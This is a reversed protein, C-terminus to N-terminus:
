KLLYIKQSTQVVALNGSENLDLNIIEEPFTIQHIKIPSTDNPKFIELLNSNSILLTSFDYNYVIKPNVFKGFESIENNTIQYIVGDKLFFINKNLCWIKEIERIDFNAMKQIESVKLIQIEESSLIILENGNLCMEITEHLQYKSLEVLNRPDRFDYVILYEPDSFIIFEQNLVIQTNLQYIETVIEFNYDFIVTKYNDGFVLFKNNKGIYKLEQLAVSQSNYYGNNESIYFIQDKLLKANQLNPLDLIESIKFPFYTLYGSIGIPIELYKTLKLYNNKPTLITTGILQDDIYLHIVLNYKGILKLTYIKHDLKLDIFEDKLLRYFIIDSDPISSSSSDLFHFNTKPLSKSLKKDKKERSNNSKKSSVKTKTYNYNPKRVNKLKM